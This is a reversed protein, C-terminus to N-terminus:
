KPAEGNNSKKVTMWVDRNKVPISNLETDAAQSVAHLFAAPICSFPLEGIGRAEPSDTNIFEMHVPPIDDPDPISYNDFM